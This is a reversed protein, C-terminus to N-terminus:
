PSINYSQMDSLTPNWYERWCLILVENSVALCMGDEGALFESPILAQTFFLPPLLEKTERATPQQELQCRKWMGLMYVSDMVAMMGGDYQSQRM